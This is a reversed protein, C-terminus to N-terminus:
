MEVYFVLMKQPFFVHNSPSSIPSLATINTSIKEHIKQLAPPDERGAFPFNPLIHAGLIGMDKRQFLTFKTTKMGQGVPLPISFNVILFLIYDRLISKRFCAIM